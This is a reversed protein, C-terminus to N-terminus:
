MNKLKLLVDTYKEKFWLYKCKINDEKEINEELKKLNEYLLLLHGQEGKIGSNVGTHLKDFYSIYNFGDFDNSTLKMFNEYEADPNTCKSYCCKAIEFIQKDIIIRPFIAKSREMEYAKLFAPGFIKKQTHIVKGYVISGRLLFKKEMAKVCLFYADQLIHHIDNDISYSIIISDSIQTIVRNMFRLEDSFIDKISLQYHIEDFLNNIEETKYLIELNKYERNKNIKKCDICKDLNKCDYCRITDDVAASFGLIDIFALIRDEYIM